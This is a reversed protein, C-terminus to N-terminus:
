LPFLRPVINPGAAALMGMGTGEIVRAALFLGASDVYLSMISGVLTIAM